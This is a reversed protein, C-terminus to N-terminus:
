GTQEDEPQALLLYTWENPAHRAAIRWGAAALEDATQEPPLRADLPPGGGPNQRREWELLALWGGPRLLRRLMTLYPIRDAIEHYVMSTFIGDLSAPPLPVDQETARVTEVNTLSAEAARRSVDELMLPEIDVAFVRGRPTREALPLTFFGPGCGVDAIGADARLPLLALVTDPPLFQYREASLLRQRMEPNFRHM